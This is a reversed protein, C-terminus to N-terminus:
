ERDLAAHSHTRCVLSSRQLGGWCGRLRPTPIFSMSDNGDFCSLVLRAFGSVFRLRGGSFAKASSSTSGSPVRQRDLFHVPLGSAVIQDDLPGGSWLAVHVDFAEVDVQRSLLLLHEASGGVSVGTLQLVKPRHTPGSMRAEDARSANEM